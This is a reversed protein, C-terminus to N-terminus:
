REAVGGTAPAVHASTTKAASECLHLLRRGLCWLGTASSFTEMETREYAVPEDILSCVKRDEVAVFEIEDVSVCRGLFFIDAFSPLHKRGSMSDIAM